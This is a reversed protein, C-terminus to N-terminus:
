PKNIPYSYINDKAGEPDHYLPISPDLNGFNGDPGASVFCIQRNRAGGYKDENYTRITGDPEPDGPDSGANFPRGPHTAYIPTGWADLITLSGVFR